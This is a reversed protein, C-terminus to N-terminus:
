QRRGDHLFNSVKQHITESFTDFFGLKQCKNGRLVRDHRKKIRNVEVKMCLKLFFYHAIESINLSLFVCVRVFPCM